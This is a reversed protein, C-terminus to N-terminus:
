APDMISASRDDVTTAVASKQSGLQSRPAKATGLGNSTKSDRTNAGNKANAKDGEVNSGKVAGSKKVDGSSQKASTAPAKAASVKSVTPGKKVSAPPTIPADHADHADDEDDESDDTNETASVPEPDGAHPVSPKASTTNKEQAQNKVPGATVPKTANKVNQVAM